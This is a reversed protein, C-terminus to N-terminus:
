TEVMSFDDKADKKESKEGEITKKFIPKTDNFKVVGLCGDEGGVLLYEKGACNVYATDLIAYASEFSWEAM